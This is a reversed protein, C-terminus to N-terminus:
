SKGIDKLRALTEDSPDELDPLAIFQIVRNEITEYARTYALAIEEEAGEADSPDPLGWHASAPNGPWVPCTEAAASDCLTFIYHFTTSTSDGFADWSKSRLMSTDHGRDMLLQVAKPNVSGAPTSGASYSSFRESAVHRLASEAMISRCSNGTCLFLVNITM